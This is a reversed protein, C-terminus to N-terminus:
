EAAAPTKPLFGFYDLIGNYLGQAFRDPHESFHGYVEPAITGGTKPFLISVHKM